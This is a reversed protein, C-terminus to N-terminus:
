PYTEEFDFPVFMRAPIHDPRQATSPKLKLIKEKVKTQKFVLNRIYGNSLPPCYPINSSDEKTFVRCLSKYLIWAMHKYDSIM